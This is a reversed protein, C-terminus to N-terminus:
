SEILVSDQKRTFDYSAEVIKNNQQQQQIIQINEIFNKNSITSLIQNFIKTNDVYSYQVSDLTTVIPLNWRQLTVNVSGPTLGASPPARCIIRVDSIIDMISVLVNGFKCQLDKTFYNGLIIIHEGGEVRGYSPEVATIIPNLPNLHTSNAVDYSDIESPSQYPSSQYLPQLYQSQSQYQPQSQYQSQYQPVLLTECHEISVDIPPCNNISSANELKRKKSKREILHLHPSDYYFHTHSYYRVNNEIKYEFTYDSLNKDLAIM